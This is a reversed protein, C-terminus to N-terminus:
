IQKYDDVMHKYLFTFPPQELISSFFYLFFALTFIVGNALQGNRCFNANSHCDVLPYTICNLAVQWSTTNPSFETYNKYSFSAPQRQWSGKGGSSESCWVHTGKAISWEIKCDPYKDRLEIRAPLLKLYALKTKSNTVSLITFASLVWNKTFVLNQRDSWEEMERQQWGVGPWYFQPLVDHMVDINIIIMLNLVAVIVIFVHISDFFM